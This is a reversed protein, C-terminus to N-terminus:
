KYKLKLAGHDLLSPTMRVRDLRILHTDVRMKM